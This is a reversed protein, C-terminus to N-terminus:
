DDAADSTYLLCATDQPDKKWTKIPIGNDLNAAFAVPNNDLIIMNSLPRNVVSLDKVFHNHVQLCSERYLRHHILPADSNQEIIDLLPSAYAAQSATFIVVEYLKSVAELFRHMGPRLRVYILAGSIPFAFDANSLPDLACHVLTEDLDLVLCQKGASEPQAPPLLPGLSPNAGGAVADGGPFCCLIRLFVDAASRPKGGGGGGGVAVAQNLAQGQANTQHMLSAAGSTPPAAAGGGPRQFMARQEATAM